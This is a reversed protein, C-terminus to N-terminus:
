LAAASFHLPSSVIEYGTASPVAFPEGGITRMFLTRVSDYACDPNYSGLSPVLVHQYYFLAGGLGLPIFTAATVLAAVVGLVIAALLLAAAAIATWVQVGVSRPLLAVPIALVAVPPPSVFADLGGPPAIIHLRSLYNAAADYMHPPNVLYARAGEWMGEADYRRPTALTLFIGRLAFVIALVWYFAPRSLVDAAARQLRHILGDSPPRSRALRQALGLEHRQPVRHVRAGVCAAEAQAPPRHALRPPDSLGPRGARGPPRDLIRARVCLSIDGCPWAGIRGRAQHRWQVRAGDRG